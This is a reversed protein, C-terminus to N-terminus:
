RAPAPPPPPTPAWPAAGPSPPRAGGAGGPTGGDGTRLLRVAGVAVAVVAAAHLLPAGALYLGRFAPALPDAGLHASYVYVVLLLASQAAALLALRSRPVLALTPLAAALYWAPVYVSALLYAVLAGGVAAAPSPRRAVAAVVAAGLVAVTVLALRGVLRSATEGAETGSRGGEVLASTLLFRPVAWISARSQYMAAEQLPAVAARGGALLYGAAITAGAVASTGAAAKWGRTALVWAALGAVAVLAVVKVLAAVGLVLGAVLLRRREALVVGALLLLGLLVDVHGENVGKALVLPSLGVFALAGAGAGRRHLLALTAALAVGALGQFVLRTATGSAGAVAAGAAAVVTFVPGYYSADDRYPKSVLPLLPDDPYAGPEQRYPSAHHVTVIRGQMGYLYVDRSHLPPVAVALVVLAASAALVARTGPPRGRRALVLVAGYGALAVLLPGLRVALVESRAAVLYAATGGVCAAFAAAVHWRPGTRTRAEAAM